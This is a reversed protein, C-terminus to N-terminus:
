IQNRRRGYMGFGLLGAGLLLLTGPEPVPNLSADFSTVSWDTHTIEMALTLSYPSTLEIASATRVDSFAPGAYLADTLMSTQAFATNGADFYTSYKVTGSTIGGIKAEFGPYDGTFGTDTLYIFLTNTGSNSTVDVSSLDLWPYSTSGLVPYSLGTAVNTTFAGVAGIYTVAGLTANADGAANDGITVTNAGGDSLRISLANASTTMWTLLMTVVLLCLSKRM